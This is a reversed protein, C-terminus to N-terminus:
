TTIFAILMLSISFFSDEFSRAHYGNQSTQFVLLMTGNADLLWGLTQSKILIKQNINTLGRFYALDASQKGHFFLLSNNTIHTALPDDPVCRVITEKVNGNRYKKPTIHDDGYMVKRYCSDIDTIILTKVGVFDIFKEFTQSHAGVEVISINQSLLPVVSNNASENDIKRMM